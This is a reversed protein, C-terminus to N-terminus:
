ATKRIPQWHTEGSISVGCSVVWSIALMWDALFLVGLVVFPNFEGGVALSTRQKRELNWSVWSRRAITMGESRIVKRGSSEGIGM